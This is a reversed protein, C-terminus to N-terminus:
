AITFFYIVKEILDLCDQNDVFNISAWDIKEKRYEEEEIQMVTKAVKM